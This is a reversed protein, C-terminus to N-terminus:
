KDKKYGEALSKIKDFLESPEPVDPVNYHKVLCLAAYLGTVFGTAFNFLGM